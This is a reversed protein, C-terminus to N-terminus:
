RSTTAPYSAAEDPYLEYTSAGALEASTRDIAAAARNARLIRNHRDKYWVMAPMADLIIQQEERQRRLEGALEHEHRRALTM